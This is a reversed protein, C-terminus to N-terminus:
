RVFYVIRLVSRQVCPVTIYNKPMKFLHVFSIIVMFITKTNYLLAHAKM